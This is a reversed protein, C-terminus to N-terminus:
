QADLWIVGADQYDLAPTTASDFKDGLNTTGQPDSDTEIGAQVGGSWDTQYFINSGRSADEREGGWRTIYTVLTTPENSGQTTVTIEVKRTSPDDNASDYVTEIAGSADRSVKSFKVGRTYTITDLTINETGSVLDWVDSVLAPHYDTEATIECGTYTPPSGGECVNNWNDQGISRVLELTEQAIENSRNKEGATKSSRLGTQSFLVVAVAIISILALAILIEVLAQGKQSPHKM